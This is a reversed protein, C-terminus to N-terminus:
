YEDELIRELKTIIADLRKDISKVFINYEDVLEYVEQLIEEQDKKKRKLELTRAILECVDHTM